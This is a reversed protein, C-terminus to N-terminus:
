VGCAEVSEAVTRRIDQALEKADLFFRGRAALKDCECLGHRPM